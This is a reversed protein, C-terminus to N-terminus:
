CWESVSIVIAVKFRLPFIM